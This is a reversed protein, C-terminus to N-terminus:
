LRPRMMRVTLARAALGSGDSVETRLYDEVGLVLDRHVDADEECPDDKRADGHSEDRPKVPPFVQLLIALLSTRTLGSDRSQSLSLLFM